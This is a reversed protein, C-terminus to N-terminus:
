FCSLLVEINEVIYKITIIIKSVIFLIEYLEFLFKRLKELELILNNMKVM